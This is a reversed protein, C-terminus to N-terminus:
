VNQKGYRELLTNWLMDLIKPQRMFTITATKRADSVERKQALMAYTMKIDTAANDESYDDQNSNIHLAVANVASAFWAPNTEIQKIMDAKSVTVNQTNAAPTTSPTNSM